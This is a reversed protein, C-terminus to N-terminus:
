RAVMNAKKKAVQHYSIAIQSVTFDIWLSTFHMIVKFHM